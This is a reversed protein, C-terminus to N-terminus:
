KVEKNTLKMVKKNDLAVFSRAKVLGEAQRKHYEKIKQNAEEQIKKYEDSYELKRKKAKKLIDDSKSLEIKSMNDGVVIIACFFM